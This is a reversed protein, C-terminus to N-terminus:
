LPVKVFYSTFLLLRNYAFLLNQEVVLIFIVALFCMCNNVHSQLHLGTILTQTNFNEAIGFIAKIICSDVNCDHVKKIYTMYM